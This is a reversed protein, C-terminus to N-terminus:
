TLARRRVLCMRACVGGRVTRAALTVSITTACFTKRAGNPRGRVFYYVRAVRGGDARPTTRRNRLASRRSYRTGGRGPRRKTRFRVRWNSSSNDTERIVVIRVRDGTQFTRHASLSASM